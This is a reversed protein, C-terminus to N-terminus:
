LLGQDSFSYYGETTLILHDRIPIRMIKGANTFHETLSFDAQSPKLSGSPHNHALIIHTANAKLAAAFVLRLDVACSTLGGSAIECIGLVKCDYNLLMIKFQEFFALKGPDWTKTLVECAQKSNSATPLQSPKLLPKYTLEIEAVILETSYILSNEM